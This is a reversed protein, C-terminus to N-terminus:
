GPGTSSRRAPPPNIAAIRADIQRIIELIAAQMSAWCPGEPREIDAFIAKRREPLQESIFALEWFAFTKVVDRKARLGTLLTGNPDKSGNSLPMGKKVPEQNLLLSFVISTAMWLSLLLFGLCFSKLMLYPNCPPLGTARANARSLNWFLKAFTLHFKWLWQRITLTYIFPGLLTTIGSVAACYM